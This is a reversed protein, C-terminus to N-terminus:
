RPPPIGLDVIESREFGRYELRLPQGAPVLYLQQFRRVASAPIMARGTPRYPLERSEAAAAYVIGNADLVRLQRGVQFELDQTRLNELLVDIAVYRRGARATPLGPPLPPPPLRLVRLTTGDSISGVPEPWAPRFGSYVPLDIAGGSQPRLLFRVNTTDTPILFALQGENPFDPLFVAPRGFPRRLWDAQEPEAVFGQDTQLFGGGALDLTVLDDRSLGTGRLGLTFYRLGPPPVPANESWGAETALLTVRENSRPSDLTPVPPADAPRGKVSAVAHGHAPDLLLLALYSANAATRFVIRGTLTEGPKSMSLTGIPLHGELALTAAEDIPEAFRGDALLWVRRPVSPVVYPAPATEMPAAAAPPILARWTTQVVVFTQGLPAAREGLEAVFEVRDVSLEVAKTTATRGPSRVGRDAREDMGVAFQTTKATAAPSVATAAATPSAAPAPLWAPAFRSVLNPIGARALELSGIVFAAACVVWCVAPFLASRRPKSGALAGLWALVALVFGLPIVGQLALYGGQLWLPPTTWYGAGRVTADLSMGYLAAFLFPLLCYMTLLIAGAMLWPLRQVIRLRVVVTIVLLLALAVVIPLLHPLPLTLITLNPDVAPGLRWVAFVVLGLAAVLSLWLRGSWTLFLAAPVMACAWCGVAALVWWRIPSGRWFTEIASEVLMFALLGTGAMAWGQPRSSARPAPM